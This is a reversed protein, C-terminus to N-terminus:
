ANKDASDFKTCMKALTSSLGTRNELNDPVNTKMTTAMTTGFYGQASDPRKTRQERLKYKDLVSSNPTLM